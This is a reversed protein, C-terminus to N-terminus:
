VCMCVGLILVRIALDSCGPSFASHMHNGSEFHIIWLLACFLLELLILESLVVPGKLFLQEAEQSNQKTANSVIYPLVSSNASLLNLRLACAAFERELDIQFFSCLFFM